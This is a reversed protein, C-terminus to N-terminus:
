HCPQRNTKIQWEETDVWHKVTTDRIEEARRIRRRGKM